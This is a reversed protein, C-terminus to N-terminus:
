CFTSHHLVLSFKGVDTFYLAGRAREVPTDLTKARRGSLPSVSANLFNPPALVSEPLTSFTIASNNVQAIIMQRDFIMNVFCCYREWEQGHFLISISKKFKGRMLNSDTCYGIGIAVAPRKGLFVDHRGRVGERVTFDLPSARSPNFYRGQTTMTLCSM